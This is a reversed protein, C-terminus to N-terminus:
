GVLRRHAMAVPMAVGAEWYMARSFGRLDREANSESLAHGWCGAPPAGLLRVLVLAHLQPVCALGPPWRAVLWSGTTLPAGLLLCCGFCGLRPSALCGLLRARAEPRARV